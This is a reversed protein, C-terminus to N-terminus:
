FDCYKKVTKIYDGSFYHDYNFEISDNELLRLDHWDYPSFKSFKLIMSVLEILREIPNQITDFRYDFINSYKQFGFYQEVYDHWGPQGYALFLGRSVISYFFKETVFPQYSTAMTESVIHLFSTTIQNELSRLNKGHNFRNYDITYIKQFFNESEDDVFFKRYYSNRRSDSYESIHGDINDISFSFNKTSYKPDFLDFKNLIAVLLKRSVHPSGNFTCVFNKYNIDPHVRYDSIQSHLIAQYERFVKYDFKICLNNYCDHVKKPYFHDVNITFIIDNQRAYNDLLDFLRNRLDQDFGGLHDGITFELPLKEIRDVLTYPPRLIM